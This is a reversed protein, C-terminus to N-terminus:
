IASQCLGCDGPEYRFEKHPSQNCPSITGGQGHDKKHAHWEPRRCNRYCYYYTILDCM